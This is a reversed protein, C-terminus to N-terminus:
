GWYRDGAKLRCVEHAPVNKTLKWQEAAISSAGPYWEFASDILDPVVKVLRQGLWAGPISKTRQLEELNLGKGGSFRTSGASEFEDARPERELVLVRAGHTLRGRRFGLKREIEQTSLGRINREITFYGKVTM